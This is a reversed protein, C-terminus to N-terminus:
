EYIIGDPFIIMQGADAEEKRPLSAALVEERILINHIM